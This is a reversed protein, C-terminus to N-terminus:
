ACLLHQGGGRADELPARLGRAALGGGAWQSDHVDDSLRVHHYSLNKGAHPPPKSNLIWTPTTCVPRAKKKWPPWATKWGNWCPAPRTTTSCCGATCLATVERSDEEGPIIEHGISGDPAVLQESYPPLTDSENYFNMEIEGQPNIGGWVGHATQLRAAADVAYTYRIKAPHGNANNM